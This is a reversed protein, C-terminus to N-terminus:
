MTASASVGQTLHNDGIAHRAKRTALSPQDTTDALAATVRRQISAIQEKAAAEGAAILEAGRHVDFGGIGSLDPSIMVDPPDGMLRARAMRDHVISFSDFVVSAIGPAQVARQGFFRSHVLDYAARSNWRQTSQKYIPVLEV